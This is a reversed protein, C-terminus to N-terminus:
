RASEQVGAADPPPGAAQWMSEFNEVWYSFWKPSEAKTTVIHMRDAYESKFGHSEFILYGKSDNANFITLSFGPNLPLNRYSFGPESRMRELVAVSSHLTRELDLNDDLQMATLRLAEPNSDQVIVRVKGGPKLM